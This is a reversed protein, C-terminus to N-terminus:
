LNFDKVIKKGRINGAITSWHFQRDIYNKFILHYITKLKSSLGNSEEPLNRYKRLIVASAEIWYNLKLLYNLNLRNAPILHQLHLDKFVGIGMGLDIACLSLDNDGGSLLSDGTRDLTLPRKGTHHLQLYYNGVNRKVALGAGSPMSDNLFYNNSWSNEKIERSVLLGLYPILKTPPNIEFELHVQGSLCGINPFQKIIKELEVFFSSAIVNDDDVFLIWGGKSQSIGALRANTLGPKPEVFVNFSDHMLWENILNQVPSMSNNDVIIIETPKWSNSAILIAELCRKLNTPNPNYTCVVVSLEFM